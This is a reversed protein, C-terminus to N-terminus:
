RPGAATVVAEFIRYVAHNIELEGYGGATTVVCLDLEPVVYLRQGGNGVAASWPLERGRWRVSGTWWQYGYSLAVPPDSMGSIGTRIHPRLSEAIWAEPVVQRERWRGHALALRGLKALDRPRLRLGAFALPRDRLDAAWEWRTIGLPEFLQERALDRLPRGTARM